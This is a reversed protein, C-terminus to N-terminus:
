EPNDKQSYKREYLGQDYTARRGPCKERPCLQCSEFSVETPFIVGSVSYSPIMVLHDTIHVGISQQVDGLIEFLPKQEELPWDQISGPTMIAIKEIHYQEKFHDHAFEFISQLALGSIADAIFRDMMDKKSRAWDDLDAGCTAVFPFVRYANEVNVALVRSKLLVGDINVHEDDKVDFFAPKYLAKPKAIALAEDILHTLENEYRSEKRIHVVDRLSNVDVNFPIDKLIITGM